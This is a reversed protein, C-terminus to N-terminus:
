RGDIYMDVQNLYTGFNRGLIPDYDIVQYCGLYLGPVAEPLKRGSSDRTRALGNL